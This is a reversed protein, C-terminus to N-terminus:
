RFIIRKIVRKLRYEYFKIEVFIDRILSPKFCCIDCEEILHEKYNNVTEGGMDDMVAIPTKVKVFKINNMYFNCIMNYDASLKFRSDFQNDKALCTRVFTSQHSFGMTKYKKKQLFFPVDDIVRIRNKYILKHPGYIVGIESNNFLASLDSLISPSAFSDGANMFIIWEGTAKRIGKNMADFIGNDPESIISVNRNPFLNKVSFVENLTNDKSLGDIILYELDGYTQNLVSLMTNRIEKEVNYCVTIVTIKM